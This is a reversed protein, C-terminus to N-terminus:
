KPHVRWLILRERWNDAANRAGANAADGCAARCGAAAGPDRNRLALGRTLTRM